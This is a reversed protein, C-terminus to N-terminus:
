PREPPYFVINVTSMAYYWSTPMVAIELGWHKACEVIDFWGNRQRQEPDATKSVSQIEPHYVHMSYVTPDDDGNLWLSAHDSHPPSHPPKDGKGVTELERDIWSRDCNCKDEGTILRRFCPKEAREDVKWAAKFRERLEDSLADAIARRVGEGPEHDDSAYERVTESSASWM